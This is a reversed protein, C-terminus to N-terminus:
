TWIHRQWAEPHHPTSVSGRSNRLSARPFLPKLEPQFGSADSTLYVVFLFFQKLPPFCCPCLLILIFGTFLSRTWLAFSRRLLVLSCSRLSWVLSHLGIVLSTKWCGTSVAAGQYIHVLIFIQRTPRFFVSSGLERKRLEM